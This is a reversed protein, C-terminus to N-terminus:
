RYQNLHLNWKFFNYILIFKAVFWAFWVLVWDHNVWKELCPEICEFFITEMIFDECVFIWPNIWFFLQYDSSESRWFEIIVIIVVNNLQRIQYFNQLTLVYQNTVRTFLFEHTTWYNSRHITWLFGVCSLYTITVRKSCAFDVEKQQLKCLFIIRIFWNRRKRTQKFFLIACNSWM